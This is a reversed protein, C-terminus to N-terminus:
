KDLLQPNEKIMKKALKKAEAIQEPTMIKAIDIKSENANANGNDAAIKWWAYATVKDEEVGQGQSYLHGLNNQAMPHGRGALVKQAALEKEAASPKNAEEAEKGCGVLCLGLVMMAMVIKM